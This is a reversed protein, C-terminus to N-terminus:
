ETWSAKHIRTFANADRSLILHHEVNESVDEHAIIFIQPFVSKLADLMEFIGQRRLNDSSSICEDMFLAYRSARVRSELITQTFALRLAILFQDQTGGSFVTNEKYGSAETSYTKFHFDETIQMDFYHSGTIQPLIRNIVLRAHPFVQKRIELATQKLELEVRELLQLKSTLEGVRDQQKNFKEEVNGLRAIDGSIITLEGDLQRIDGDIGNLQKQAIDYKSELDKLRQDSFEGRGESIVPLAKMQERLSGLAIATQRSKKYAYAALMLFLPLGLVFLWNVVVLAISAIVGAGAGYLLSKHLRQNSRLLNLESSRSEYIARSAKSEKLQRQRDLLERIKQLDSTAELRRATLSPYDIENIKKQRSAKQDYTNKSLRIAELEVNAPSLDDRVTKTNKKLKLIAQDFIDIGMAKNIMLERDSKDLAKLVDLEKQRIYILETFSKRDMGTVQEITDQIAEVSEVIRTGEPSTRKLVAEHRGSRTINREIEFVDHGVIFKVKLTTAEKGWTIIDERDVGKGRQLGYIAYWLAELLTTKGCENHGIIAIRGNLPFELELKEGICKFGQVTLSQIIM